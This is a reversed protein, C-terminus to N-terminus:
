SLGEDSPYSPYTPRDGRLVAPRSPLPGASTGRKSM